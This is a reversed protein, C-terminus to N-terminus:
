RNTERRSGERSSGALSEESSASARARDEVDELTETELLREVKREFQEDTLEGRAYRARLTELADRNNTGPGAEAAQPRETGDGSHADGWWAGPHGRWGEEARSDERHEATEGGDQWEEDGDEWEDSDGSLRSATPVLVVYGFLMFWLWWDFGAILALIWTGTVFSSVIETANERGRELADTM